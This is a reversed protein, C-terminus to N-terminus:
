LHYNLRKEINAGTKPGYKIIPVDLEPLSVEKSEDIVQLTKPVQVTRARLKVRGIIEFGGKLYLPLGKTSADAFIPVQEANARDLAWAMLRKGVGMRQFEPLIALSPAEIREPVDGILTEEAESFEKIVDPAACRIHSKAAEIDLLERQLQKEKTNPNWVAVSEKAGYRVTTLYGVIKKKEQPSSKPLSTTGHMLEDRSVKAVMIVGGPTVMLRRLTNFIADYFDEPYFERLPHFHGYIAETAFAAAGISALQAIDKSEAPQIHM